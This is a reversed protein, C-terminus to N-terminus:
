SRATRQLAPMRLHCGAPQAAGVGRVPSIRNARVKVCCTFTFTFTECLVAVMDAHLAHMWPKTRACCFFLANHALLPVDALMSVQYCDITM